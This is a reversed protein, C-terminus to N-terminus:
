KTGSPVACSGARSTKVPPDPNTNGPAKRSASTIWAAARRAPMESTIPASPRETFSTMHSAFILSQGDPYWGLLRESGGHHTIRQPEGGGVPMVYLDVNGDYNGSFALKKGDPSFRPFQQSGRPSSLRLATGGSKPAIWINGGYVFAIQSKSVTPMQLMRADIQAPAPEDDAHLLSVALVALGLRFPLKM